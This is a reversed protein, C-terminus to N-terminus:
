DANATAIEPNILPMTTQMQPITGNRQTSQTEGEVLWGTTGAPTHRAKLRAASTMTQFARRSKAACRAFNHQANAAAHQTGQGTNAHIARPGNLMNLCAISRVPFPQSQTVHFAFPHPAVWIVM